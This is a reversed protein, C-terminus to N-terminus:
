PPPHCFRSFFFQRHSQVRFFTEIQQPLSRRERRWTSFPIWCGSFSFSSNTPGSRRASVFFNQGYRPQRFFPDAGRMTLCFALLPLLFFFFSPHHVPSFRIAPLPHQGDGAGPDFSLSESLTFIPAPFSFLSFLFPRRKGLFSTLSPFKISHRIQSFPPIAVM